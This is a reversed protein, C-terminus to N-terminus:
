ATFYYKSASEQKTLLGGGGHMALLIGILGVNRRLNFWAAM